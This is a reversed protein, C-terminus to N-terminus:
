VSDGFKRCALIEANVTYIHVYIYFYMCIARVYIAYQMCLARAAYYRTENGYKVKPKPVPSVCM